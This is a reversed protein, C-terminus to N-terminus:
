RAPPLVPRFIRWTLLMRFSRLAASNGGLYDQFPRDQSDTGNADFYAMGKIHRDLKAMEGASQLWSPLATPAGYTGYEGILIPKKTANAWRLFPQAAVALPQRTSSTYVDACVWDVESNGPYFAQARGDSFGWGTPCWVWGVNTAGQMAFIARIHDWAAIYDKPGHVAWQLNPRDMEHRFELLIPRGLRKVAKARAAIESDYKGAIIKKTDPTGSWTLLLVKGSRVVYRDAADPFPSSWSHYTHVLQIPHGVAQQFSRVAAVEGAPTYLSPQVYAGLYAGSTPILRAAPGQGTAAPSTASASPSPTPTSSRLGTGTAPDRHAGPWALYAAMAAIVVTAAIAAYLKAPQLSSLRRVKRHTM